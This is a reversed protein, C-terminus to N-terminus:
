LLGEQENIVRVVESVTTVGSHVKDWGDQLLSQMGMSLAAHRIREASAKHVVMNRLRDNMILFEFLGVRGHYGSFDCAPCGTGEYVYGDEQAPLGLHRLDAACVFVSKQCQPCIRRVLRQAIFAEVTSTLLYPEVGMDLLRSVAGAADNTHLTSLVLHGTLAVQVAIQATEADRVEGVMMMDPDHRLMSRLGTAFSFNIQPNVQLQTIGPIMYEIPDEITIIKKDPGKVHSLCCYLTTTKGSGTPGTVFIIGHPRRLLQHLINLHHIQLGLDDLRYIKATDLLRLVISEGRSMPLFSVRLDLERGSVQVNFRGDQPLRCEAINLNAMIKVRSIIVDRFHWINKPVEVDRLVGDVRYRIKVESESPEIHIDTARKRYAELLIQNLFKGISAESDLATIDNMGTDEEIAHRKGIMMADITEAGVGYYQRIAQAVDQDSAVVMHLKGPWVLQIGDMMVPDFPNPSALTLVDDNLAMPMVHYYAAFQAPIKAIIDNPIQSKKLPSYELGIRQAILSFFADEDNIRGSSLLIYGLRQRTKKQEDLAWTLDHASIIGDNVLQQGLLLTKQPKM